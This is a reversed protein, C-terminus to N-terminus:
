EELNPEVKIASLDFMRDAIYDIFEPTQVTILYFVGSDAIKFFCKLNEDKLEEKLKRELEKLCLLPRECKIVTDLLQIELAWGSYVKVLKGRISFNM